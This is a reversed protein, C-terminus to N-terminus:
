CNSAISCLWGRYGAAVAPLSPHRERLTAAREIRSHQPQLANLATELEEPTDAWLEAGSATEQYGAERACIAPTGTAQANALKVNSKWHRPAYGAQDRLALVIDVDALRHPNVVFRWGRRRCAATIVPHWGRIYQEGGEYGVAAIRERIPNMPQAPRAHHPLALVPVGFEECDAAMAQTAAVIAAPRVAEVKARLWGMCQERSWTNGEPQPWGDVIDYVLPVGARHIREVMDGPTRKVVVALDFPGIDIAGPLVTAGIAKGIQEGRIQWSGSSGGKGTVLLNVTRPWYGNAM